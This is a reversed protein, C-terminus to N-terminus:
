MSESQKESILLSESKGQVQDAGYHRDNKAKSHPDNQVVREMFSLIAGNMFGAESARQDIALFPNLHLM